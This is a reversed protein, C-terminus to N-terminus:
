YQFLRKAEISRLLACTLLRNGITKVGMMSENCGDILRFSVFNEVYVNM